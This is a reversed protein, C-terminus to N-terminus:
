MRFVKIYVSYLLEEARVSNQRNGPGIMWLYQIDLRLIRINLSTQVQIDGKNFHGGVSLLPVSYDKEAASM